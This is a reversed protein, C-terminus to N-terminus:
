AKENNEIEILRRDAKKYKLTKMAQYVVDMYSGRYEIVDPSYEVLQKKIRAKKKKMIKLM